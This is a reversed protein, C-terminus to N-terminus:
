IFTYAVFTKYAEKSDLKVRELKSADYSLLTEIYKSLTLKGHQTKMIDKDNNFSKTYVALYEKDVQKINVVTKTAKFISAIPYPSNQYQQTSEKKSYTYYNSM